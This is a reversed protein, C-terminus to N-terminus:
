APSDALRPDYPIREGRPGVCFQSSGSWVPLWSPDLVIKTGDSLFRVAKAQKVSSRNFDLQRTLGAVRATVAVTSADIILGEPATGRLAIAAATLVAEAQRVDIQRRHLGLKCAYFLGEYEVGGQRDLRVRYSACYGYCPSVEWEVYDDQRFEPLAAARGALADIVEQEQRSPLVSPGVCIFLVLSLALLQWLLQASPLASFAPADTETSLDNSGV